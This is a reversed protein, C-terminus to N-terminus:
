SSSERPSPFHLQAERTLCRDGTGPARGPYSFSSSPTSATRPGLSRLRPDAVEPSRSSLLGTSSAPQRSLPVLFCPLTAPLAPRTSPLQQLESRTARASQCQEARRAGSPESVRGDATRNHGGRSRRQNVPQRACRREAFKAWRAACPSPASPSTPRLRAPARLAPVPSFRSAPNSGSCSFRSGLPGCWAHPVGKRSIGLLAGRQWGKGMWLPFALKEPTFPGIGAPGLLQLSIGSNM